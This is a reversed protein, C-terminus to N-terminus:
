VFLGIISAQTQVDLFHHLFKNPYINFIINLQKV